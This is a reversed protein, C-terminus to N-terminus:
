SNIIAIMLDLIDIVGDENIDQALPADLGLIAKAIDSVVEPQFIIAIVGDAGKTIDRREAQANTGIINSLQIDYTGYIVDFEINLLTANDLPVTHNPKLAYVLIRNNAPNFDVIKNVQQCTINKITLGIVDAQFAVVDINDTVELDVVNTNSNTLNLIM